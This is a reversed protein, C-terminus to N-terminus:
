PVHPSALGTIQAPGQRYHLRSALGATSGLAWGRRGPVTVAASSIFSIMLQYSSILNDENVRERM